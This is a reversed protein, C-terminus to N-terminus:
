LWGAITDLVLVVVLIARLKAEDAARTSAASPSFGVFPPIQQWGDHHHGYLKCPMQFELGVFMGSNLKTKNCQSMFLKM